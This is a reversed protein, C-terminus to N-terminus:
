LQMYFYCFELKTSLVMYVIIYLIERGQIFPIMRWIDSIYDLDVNSIKFYFVLNM